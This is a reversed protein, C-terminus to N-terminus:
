VGVLKRTPKKIDISSPPSPKAPPAERKKNRGKGDIIGKIHIALKYLDGDTLIHHSGGIAKKLYKNDNLEITHITALPEFQSYEKGTNLDVDYQEEEISGVVTVKNQLNITDKAKGQIRSQIGTGTYTDVFDQQEPESGWEYFSLDIVYQVFKYKIVFASQIHNKTKAPIRFDLYTGLKQYIHKNLEPTNATILEEKDLDFAIRFANYIHSSFQDVTMEVQASNEFLVDYLQMFKM